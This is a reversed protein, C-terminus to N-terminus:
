GRALVLPRVKNRSPWNSSTNSLWNATDAPFVKVCLKCSPRATPRPCPVGRKVPARRPHTESSKVARHVEAPYSRNRCPTARFKDAAAEAAGGGGGGGSKEKNEADEIMRDLLAIINQQRTRVLESSDLNKLRRESFTMLDVVDGIRGPQRTSLEALMQRAALTLRDPAEPYKALFGELATGARDYPMDALLCYGQLFTIEPAFYSYDKLAQGKALLAEVRVGAEILRDLAVLSKIEYAAANVSLFSNDHDTLRAMKSACAAYQDQDYADLAERFPASIVTLGQTLFEEGDCGDCEAWTRQIMDRAQAAIADDAALHQVFRNAPEEAHAPWAISVLVIGLGACRTRGKARGPWRLPRSASQHTQRPKM